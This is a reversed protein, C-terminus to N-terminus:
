RYTIPNGNFRCKEEIVMYCSYTPSVDTVWGTTETIEQSVLRKALTLSIIVMSGVGEEIVMYCSYTTSYDTVWGTTETIEQSVLRKAATLSIIVM